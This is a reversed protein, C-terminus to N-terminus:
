QTAAREGDQRGPCGRRVHMGLQPTAPSQQDVLFAHRRFLLVLVARRAVFPCDLLAAEIRRGDECGLLSADSSPRDELDRSRHVDRGAARLM